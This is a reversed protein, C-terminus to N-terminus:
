LELFIDKGDIIYTVPLLIFISLQYISGRHLYLWINRKPSNDVYELNVYKCPILLIIM